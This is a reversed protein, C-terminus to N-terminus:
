HRRVRPPFGRSLQSHPRRERLSCTCWPRVPQSVPQSPTIEQSGPSAQDWTAMRNGGRSSCIQTVSVWDLLFSPGGVARSSRAGRYWDLLPASSPEVAPCSTHDPRQRCGYTDEALGTMWLCNTATDDLMNRRSVSGRITFALYDLSSIGLRRGKATPGIRERSDMRKIAQGFGGFKTNIKSCERPAFPCPPEGVSLRSGAM